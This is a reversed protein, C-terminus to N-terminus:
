VQESEPLKEMESDLVSELQSKLEALHEQSQVLDLELAQLRAKQPASGQVWGVVLGSVFGFVMALVLASQPDM